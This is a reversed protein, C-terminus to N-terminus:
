FSPFLTKSPTMMIPIDQFSPLNPLHAFHCRLSELEQAQYAPLSTCSQILYSDTHKHQIKHDSAPFRFPHSFLFDDDKFAVSSNGVLFTKLDITRSQAFRLAAVAKM